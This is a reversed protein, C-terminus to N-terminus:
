STAPLPVLSRAYSENRSRFSLVSTAGVVKVTCVHPRLTTKETGLVDGEM